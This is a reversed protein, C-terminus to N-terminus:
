PLFVVVLTLRIKISNSFGDSLAIKFYKLSFLKEIFLSLNSNLLSINKKLNAKIKTNKLDLYGTLYYLFAEPLLQKNNDALTILYPVYASVDEGLYDLAMAAWLTGEYDCESGTSFCSSKIQMSVSGGSSASKTDKLVHITDSNERKKERFNSASIM